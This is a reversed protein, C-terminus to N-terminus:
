LDKTLYEVLEKREEDTIAYRGSTLNNIVKDVHQTNLRFKKRLNKETAFFYRHHHTELMIEISNLTNLELLSYKFVRDYYEALLLNEKEKKKFSLRNLIQAYLHIYSRICFGIYSDLLVGRTYKKAEIYGVTLDEHVSIPNIAQVASVKKPLSSKLKNRNLKNLDATFEKLFMCTATYRAAIYLASNNVGITRSASERLATFLRFWVGHQFSLVKGIEIKDNKNKTKLADAIASLYTKLVTQLEEEIASLYTQQNVAPPFLETRICDSMVSVVIKSDTFDLPKYKQALVEKFSLCIPTVAAAFLCKLFYRKNM